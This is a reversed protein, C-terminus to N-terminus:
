KELSKTLTDAQRELETAAAKGDCYRVLTEALEALRGPKSDRPPLWTQGALFRPQTGALVDRHFASFHYTVGDRGDTDDAPLYRTELLVGIWAASVQQAVAADLPRECRTLPVDKPNTPLRSRLREIEDAQSKSIDDNPNSGKVAQTQMMHLIEYDWLHITPRLYFVRYDDGRGIGANRLGVLYEPERSLVVARLTVDSAYGDALVDVILDDHGKIFALLGHSGESLISTEPMLHDPRQQQQPYAPAVGLAAALFLLVARQM